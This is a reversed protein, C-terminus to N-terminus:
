AGRLRWPQLAARLGDSLRTAGQATVCVTVVDALCVCQGDQFLAMAIEYSSNGIRALGACAELPQPYHAERLYDYSARAGLLRYDRERFLFDDGFVKTVFRTRAEEHYEALSLNNIHKLIDMDAFRPAVTMTFPYSAIDLRIPDFKM